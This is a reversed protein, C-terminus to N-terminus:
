STKLYAHVTGINSSGFQSDGARCSYADIVSHASLISPCHFVLPRLLHKSHHELLIVELPFQVPAVLVLGFGMIKQIYMRQQVCNKGDAIRMHELAM